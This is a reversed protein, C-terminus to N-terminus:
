MEIRHPVISHTGAGFDLRATALDLRIGTARTLRRSSLNDTTAGTM